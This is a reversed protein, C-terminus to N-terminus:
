EPTGEEELTMEDFNELLEEEPFDAEEEEEEEPELAPVPVPAPVEDVDMAHQTKKRAKVGNTRPGAKGPKMGDTKYLMVTARMEPEEELDRLFLKYDEEIKTQDRGGMRGVAGRGGGTEGEEGEEKAVSRLRWNRSKNKKRSNPYAKRV